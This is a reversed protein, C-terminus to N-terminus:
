FDGSPPVNLWVSFENDITAELIHTYFGVDAVVNFLTPNIIKM